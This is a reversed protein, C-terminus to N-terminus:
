PRAGSLSREICGLLAIRIRRLMESVAKPTSGRAAALDNVCGDPQYRSAVLDRHEAPLRQLCGALARRRPELEDAEAVAESAITELVESGLRRKGRARTALWAMAQLQAIRMAWPLFPRGSDYDAAKRWLVLNTEQLVDDADVGQWIMTQIFAHLHRQSRTYETIFAAPPSDTM